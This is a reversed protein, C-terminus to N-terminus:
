RRKNKMQTEIATIRNSLELHAKTQETRMDKIQERHEDFKEKFESLIIDLKNDLAEGQQEIADELNVIKSKVSNLDIELAKLPDKRNQVEKLKESLNKRDLVLEKVLIYAILALLNIVHWYDGM